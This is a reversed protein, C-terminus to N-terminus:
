ARPGTPVASSGPERGSDAFRDRVRRLKAKLSFKTANQNLIAHLDPNHSTRTSSVPNGNSVRTAVEPVTEPGSDPQRRAFISSLSSLIGKGRLGSHRPLGSVPTAAADVRDLSFSQYGALPPPLPVQRLTPNSAAKPRFSDARSLLRRRLGLKRPPVSEAGSEVITASPSPVSARARPQNPRKVEVPPEPPTSEFLQETQLAPRQLLRELTAPTSNMRSSMTADPATFSYRLSRPPEAPPSPIERGVHPPLAITGLLRGTVPARDAGGMGAVLETPDTRFIVPVEPEQPILAKGPNPQESAPIAQVTSVTAIKSNSSNFHNRSHRSYDPMYQHPPSPTSSPTNLAGPQAIAKRSNSGPTPVTSSKILSLKRKALSRLDFVSSSLDEQTQSFHEPIAEQSLGSVPDRVGQQIDNLISSFPPRESPKFNWCDSFVFPLTYLASRLPMDVNLALSNLRELSGPPSGQAIAFVVSSDGRYSSYPICDTIIEFVTCAWAWVDGELTPKAEPDQFLEPSMYRTSGKITRSTVLGSSTGSNEVFTALGFDCLVADPKDNILVNAPKLDGHCIPPDFNHLYAMGLTVSRAFGLRVETSPQTRKIYEIINGNPMYPSVLQAFGYNESLYYGVLKLVNPHQAKAWTKLERALRM